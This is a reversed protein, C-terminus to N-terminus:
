MSSFGAPDSDAAPAASPGSPARDFSPVSIRFHCGHSSLRSVQSNVGRRLEPVFWTQAKSKNRQLESGYEMNRFM